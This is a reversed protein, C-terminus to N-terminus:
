ADVIRCSGAECVLLFNRPSQGAKLDKFLPNRGKLWVSMDSAVDEVFPPRLDVLSVAATSTSTALGAEDRVKKILLDRASVPEDSKSAVGDRLPVTSSTIDPTCLVGAVTRIGLDLGVVVDLLGVFLFPHQMIEVSFANCTERALKRYSEEELLASLRLINRAIVGNVSPTAAETGGKLRLLPGPVGPTLNSPTTYYGASSSDPGEALFHTNLYESSRTLM